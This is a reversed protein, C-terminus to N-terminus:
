LAHPVSPQPLKNPLVLVRLFPWTSSLHVRVDLPAYERDPSFVTIATPLLDDVPQVLLTNEEAAACHVPDEVLV